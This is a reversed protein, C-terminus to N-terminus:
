KGMGKSNLFYKRDSQNKLSVYIITFNDSDTDWEEMRIKCKLQKDNLSFDKSHYGGNISEKYGLNFRKLTPINDEEVKLYIYSNNFGRDLFDKITIYSDFDLLQNKLLM